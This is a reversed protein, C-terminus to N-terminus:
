ILHTTKGNCRCTASSKQECATHYQQLHGKEARCRSLTATDWLSLSVHVHLQLASHGMTGNASSTTSNCTAVGGATSRMEAQM